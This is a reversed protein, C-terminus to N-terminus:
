AFDMHIYVHHKPLDEILKRQVCFQNRIREAHQCFELVQLSFQDESEQKLKTQNVIKKKKKLKKRAQNQSAYLKSRKDNKM